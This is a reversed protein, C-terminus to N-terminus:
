PGACSAVECQPEGDIASTVKAATSEKSELPRDPLGTEPIANQHNECYCLPDVSLFGDWGMGKDCKPFGFCPASLKTCSADEVLANSKSSKNQRPRREIRWSRCAKVTCPANEAQLSRFCQM